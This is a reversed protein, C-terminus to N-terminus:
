LSATFRCGNRFNSCGIFKGYRGERVVLKGGCNPCIDAPAEGTKSKEESAIDVSVTGKCSNCIGRAPGDSGGYTYFVDENAIIGCYKCKLWRKDKEDIVLRKNKEVNEEIAKKLLAALQNEARATETREKEAAKRKAEAEKKKEEEWLLQQQRKKEEEEIRLQERREQELREEEALKKEREEFKKIEEEALQIVPVGDKLLVGDESFCFKSLPALTIFIEKWLGKRDQAAAKIEFWSTDLPKDSEDNGYGYELLVCYGQAKQMKILFEPYQGTIDFNTWDTVYVTRFEELSQVEEIKETTINDSNYWYCIGIKKEKSLVTFEFERESDSVENVPVRSECLKGTVSDLWMKLVVKSEVAEQNETKFSCEQPLGEAEKGRFHQTRLNKEGAVVRLNMGCGCPCFLKGERGLKRLEEVKGPINIQKGDPKVTYISEIGIIKGDCLAMSRKIAM